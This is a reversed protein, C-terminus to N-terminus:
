DTRLIFRNGETDGVEAIVVGPAVEVPAATAVGGAATIAARAAPLDIVALHLGNRGGAYRPTQALGLRVGALKISTWRATAFMVDAGFAQEYFAIARLMDAVEVAFFTETVTAHEARQKTM